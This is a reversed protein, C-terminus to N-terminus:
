NLGFEQMRWRTLEGNGFSIFQTASITALQMISVSQSLVDGCLRTLPKAADYVAVGGNDSGLILYEDNPSFAAATIMDFPSFAVSLYLNPDNSYLVNITGTMDAIAFIKGANSRIMPLPARWMFPFANHGTQANFVTALGFYDSSTAINEGSNWYFISKESSFVDDKVPFEMPFNYRLKGTQVNRVRVHSGSTDKIAIDGLNNFALAAIVGEDDEITSTSQTSLDVFTISTGREDPVYALLGTSSLAFKSHQNGGWLWSKYSTVTSYITDIVVLMGHTQLGTNVVTSDLIIYRGNDSFWLDVFIQNISAIPKVILLPQETDFLSWIKVDGSLSIAAMMTGQQNIKALLFNLPNFQGVTIPEQTLRCGIRAHLCTVAFFSCVLLFYRM